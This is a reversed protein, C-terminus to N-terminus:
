SYVVPARVAYLLSFIWILIIAGYLVERKSDKNQLPFVLARFRDIALTSISFVNAASAMYETYLCIQCLVPSIASNQVKLFIVNPIVFVAIAIDSVSLSVLLINKSNKKSRKMILVIAFINTSIIILVMLIDVVVLAATTADMVM